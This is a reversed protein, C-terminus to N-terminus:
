LRNFTKKLISKSELILKKGIKKRWEGPGKLVAGNSFKKFSIKSTLYYITCHGLIESKQLNQGVTNTLFSLLQKVKEVFNM